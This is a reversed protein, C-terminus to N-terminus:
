MLLVGPHEFVHMDTNLILDPLCMPIYESGHLDLHERIIDSISGEYYKPNRDNFTKISQRLKSYKDVCKISAEKCTNNYETNPKQIIIAFHLSNVNCEIAYMFIQYLHKGIFVNPTYCIIDGDLPIRVAPNDIHCGYGPIHMLKPNPLHLTETYYHELAYCADEMCPNSPWMQPSEIHHVINHKNSNNLASLLM